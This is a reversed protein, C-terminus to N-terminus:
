WAAAALNVRPVVEDTRRPQKGPLRRVSGARRACAHTGAWRRAKVHRMPHRKKRETSLLREFTRKACCGPEDDHATAQEARRFTDLQDDPYAGHLSCWTCAQASLRRAPAELCQLM